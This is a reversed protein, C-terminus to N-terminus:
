RSHSSAKRAGSWQSRSRRSAGGLAHVTARTRVPLQVHGDVVDGLDVREHAPEHGVVRSGLLDDGVDLRSKRWTRAPRGDDALSRRVVIHLGDDPENGLAVGVGRAPRAREGAGTHGGVAVCDTTPM